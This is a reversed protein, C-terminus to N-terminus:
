VLASRDDNGDVDDNRPSPARGTVVTVDGVEPTKQHRGPKGSSKRPWDEPKGDSRFHSHHGSRRTRRASGEESKRDEDPVEEGEVSDVEPLCGHAGKFGENSMGADVAASSAKSRRKRNKDSAKHQSAGGVAGEEEDKVVGGEAGEPLRAANRKKENVSKDSNFNVRHSPVFPKLTSSSAQGDSSEEKDVASLLARPCQHVEVSSQYPGRTMSSPVDLDSDGSDSEVHSPGLLVAASIGICTSM